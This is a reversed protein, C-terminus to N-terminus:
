KNTAGFAVSIFCAMLNIQQLFLSYFRCRQIVRPTNHYGSKLLTELAFFINM